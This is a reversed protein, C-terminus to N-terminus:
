LKKGLCALFPQTVRVLSGQRRRMQHAHCREPLKEKQTM